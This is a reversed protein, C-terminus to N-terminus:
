VNYPITPFDECLGDLDWRDRAAPTLIHVVMAGLDLLVWETEPSQGEPIALIGRIKLWKRLAERLTGLHVRNQATALVFAETWDVGGRVDVLRVEEALNEELFRAVEQPEM